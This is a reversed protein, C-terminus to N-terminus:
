HLNNWNIMKDAQEISVFKFDDVYRKFKCFAGSIGVYSVINDKVGMGKWRPQNKDFDHPHFYTMLYENEMSWKKILFYPLLRFYGGGSYSIHHHISIPYEKMEGIIDQMLHPHNGHFSSDANFGMEALADFYWEEIGEIGFNPARYTDVEIGSVDELMKKATSTEEIFSKKDLSNPSIHWYGNCCIQHGNSAIKKIFDPHNDALWGLCFFSAKIQKYDLVELISELGQEARFEFRTWDRDDPKIFGNYWDETNFTLISIM